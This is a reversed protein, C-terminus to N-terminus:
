GVEFLFVHHLGVLKSAFVIAGDSTSDLSYLEPQASADSGIVAIGSLQAARFFAILTEDGNPNIVSLGGITTLSPFSTAVWTDDAVDIVESGIQKFLGTPTPEVGANDASGYAVTGARHLKYPLM